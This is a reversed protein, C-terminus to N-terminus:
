KMNKKLAAAINSIASDEAASVNMPHAADDAGVSVVSKVIGGIKAFLGEARDAGEGFEGYAQAVSTAVDLTM